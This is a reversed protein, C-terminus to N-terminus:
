LFGESRFYVLEAEKTIHLSRAEREQQSRLYALDAAIWEEESVEIADPLPGRDTKDAICPAGFLCPGFVCTEAPNSRCPKHNM